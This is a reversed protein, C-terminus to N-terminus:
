NWLMLELRSHWVRHQAGSNDNEMLGARVSGSKIHGSENIVDNTIADDAIGTEIVESLFVHRRPYQLALRKKLNNLGVGHAELSHSASRPTQQSSDKNAKESRSDATSQSIAQNSSQSSYQSSIQSAEEDSMQTPMTNKCDFVLSDDTVYLALEVQANEAISEAGHKFANELLVIFLLPAVQISQQTTDPWTANITVRDGLRVKQLALYNKLYDVESQLPVQREQGEYVTYRLMDSLNMVLDPALDSKKLTLAYLSNMSNFLFHPNIQQQLLQLETQTKQETIQAERAADRQREFALILPTTLFLFLLSVKYNDPDFVDFNESPLFSFHPPTMPLHIVVQGALPTYVLWFVFSALVFNFVGFQNLVRKILVYRNVLYLSAMLLALIGFQWAYNLFPLPDTIVQVPDIILNIPM